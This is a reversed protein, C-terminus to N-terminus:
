GISRNSCSNKYHGYYDRGDDIEDVLRSLSKLLVFEFGYLLESNICLESDECTDVVIVMGYSHNANYLKEVGSSEGRHMQEGKEENFESSASGGQNGGVHLLRAARESFLVQGSRLFL